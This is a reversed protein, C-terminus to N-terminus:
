VLVKLSSHSLRLELFLDFCLNSLVDFSRIM